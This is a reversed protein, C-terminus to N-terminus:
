PQEVPNKKKPPPHPPPCTHANVVDGHTFIYSFYKWLQIIYPHCNRIIQIKNCDSDGYLHADENNVPMTELKM